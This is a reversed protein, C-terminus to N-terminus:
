YGAPTFVVCLCMNVALICTHSACTAASQVIIINVVVLHANIPVQSQSNARSTLHGSADSQM